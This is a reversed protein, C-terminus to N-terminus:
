NSLKPFKFINSTNSKFSPFKFIFFENVVFSIVASLIVIFLLSEKFSKFNTSKVTSLKSTLLSMVAFLKFKFLSIEATLKFKDSFIVDLFISFESFIIVSENSVFDIVIASPKFVKCSFGSEIKTSLKVTFLFVLKFPLTATTISIFSLVFLNETEPGLSNLVTFVPSKNELEITQEFEIEIELM